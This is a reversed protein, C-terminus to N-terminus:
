SIDAQPVSGATRSSVARQLARQVDRNRQTYIAPYLLPTFSIYILSVLKDEKLSHGSLPRAYMATACGYHLVAVTLHSAMTNFAKHHGASGGAGLIVVLVRIYSLLILALPLVLLLLCAVGGPPDYFVHDVSAGQCFPLQFIAMTLGLALVSGGACCSALLCWCLGTTMLHPYYLPRCIALYRDLAMAALLLGESGGLAVFLGMQAACTSRAVVQGGPPLLFGALMHPTLVLTYAVRLIGPDRVGAPHDLQVRALPEHRSGIKQPM